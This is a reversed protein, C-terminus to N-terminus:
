PAPLLTALPGLLTRQLRDCSHFHTSALRGLALDAHDGDSDVSPLVLQGDISRVLVDVSPGTPLGTAVDVHRTVALVVSDALYSVAARPTLVPSAPPQGVVPEMVPTPGHSHWFTAPVRPLCVRRAVDARAASPSPTVLRRSTLAPVSGVGFLDRAFRHLAFMTPGDLAFESLQLVEMWPRIVADPARASASPARNALMRGIEPALWAPPKPAIRLPLSRIAV